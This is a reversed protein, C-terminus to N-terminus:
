RYRGIGHEPHFPCHYVRAIPAHEAVFRQCMWRTLEAYADEDFYGRGIGAQNTIIVIPRKIETTWFRALDFIGAVFEFQDERHVYGHDINVIGDRDLFLASGTAAQMATPPPQAQSRNMSCSSANQSSFRVIKESPKIALLELLPPKM